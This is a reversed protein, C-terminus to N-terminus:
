PGLSVQANIKKMEIIERRNGSSSDEMKIQNKRSLADAVLNAKRPHYDIECDYDKILEVWRIQRINLEKQSM